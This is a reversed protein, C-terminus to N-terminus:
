PREHDTTLAALIGLVTAAGHQALAGTVHDAAKRVQAPAHGMAVGWAAWVLAQLDNISDGIALTDARDIRLRRRVTELATAKSVGPPTVGIWDAGAPTATLGAARLPGILSHAGPARLVIRPSALAGLEHVPLVTQEGRLLGAPFPESVYYGVDIEEVAIALGSLRAELACSVVQRADLTRVDALDLRYGDPTLRAIVAGSSAIAWGEELGLVAAIPVVGALSRGSALVVHHGAARVAGVAAVTPAPVDLRASATLTGDIDLAVLVPRSGAGFSPM